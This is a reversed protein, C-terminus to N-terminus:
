SAAGNASSTAAESEAESSGSGEKGFPVEGQKMALQGEEKEEAKTGTEDQTREGAVSGGEAAAQGEPLGDARREFRQGQSVERELAPEAETPAAAVESAVSEGSAERASEGRPAEKAVVEAEASSRPLADVAGSISPLDEAYKLGALTKEGGRTPCEERERVLSEEGEQVLREQEKVAGPELGEAAFNEEGEGVLSTEGEGAVAQEGKRPGAAAQEAAGIEADSAVTFSEEFRWDDSGPRALVLRPFCIVALAWHGELRTEHLDSCYSCLARAATVIFPPSSEGLM